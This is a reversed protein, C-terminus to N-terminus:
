QDWDERKLVLQPADPEPARQSEKKRQPQREAACKALIDMGKEPKMRAFGDVWGGFLRELEPAMGPMAEKGAKLDKQFLRLERSANKLLPSCPEQKEGAAAMARANMELNVLRKNLDHVTRYFKEAAASDDPAKMRPGKRKASKRLKEFFSGDERASAALYAALLEYKTWEALPNPETPKAPEDRDTKKEAKTETKKEPATSGVPQKKDPATPVPEKRPATSKSEEPDKSDTAHVVADILESPLLSPGEAERQKAIKEMAEGEQARRKRALQRRLQELRQEVWAILAEAERGASQVAGVGEGLHIGRLEKLRKLGEEVESDKSAKSMELVLSQLAEVLSAGPDTPNNRDQKKPEM